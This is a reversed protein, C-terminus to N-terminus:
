KNGKQRPPSRVVRESAKSSATGGGGRPSPNSSVFSSAQHSRLGGPIGTNRSATRM